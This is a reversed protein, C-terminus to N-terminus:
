EFPLITGAILVNVLRELSAPRAPDGNYNTLLEKYIAVSTRPKEAHAIGRRTVLHGRSNIPDLLEDRLPSPTSVQRRRFETSSGM